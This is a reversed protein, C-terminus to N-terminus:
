KRTINSGKAPPAKKAVAPGTEKKTAWALLEQDIEEPTMKNRAEAEKDLKALIREKERMQKPSLKEMPEAFSRILKEAGQKYGEELNTMKEEQKAREAAERKAETGEKLRFGEAEGGEVFLFRANFLSFNQKFCHLAKM